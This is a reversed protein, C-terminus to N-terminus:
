HIQLICTYYNYGYDNHSSYRFSRCFSRRFVRRGVLWKSMITKNYRIQFAVHLYQLDQYYGLTAIIIFKLLIYHFFEKLGSAENKILRKINFLRMITM